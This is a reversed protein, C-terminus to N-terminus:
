GTAAAYTGPRVTRRTSSSRRTTSTSSRPPSEPCSRRRGAGPWRRLAADVPRHSRRKEQRRAARAEGAGPGAPTRRSHATRAPLRPTTRAPPVTGSCTSRRSDRRVRSSAPWWSSRPRQDQGRRRAPPVGDYKGGRWGASASDGLLAAVLPVGLAALPNVARSAPHYSAGRPRLGLVLASRLSAGDARRQRDGLGERGPLSRWCRRGSTPWTVVERGRARTGSSGHQTGHVRERCGTAVRGGSARVWSRRARSARRRRSLSAESRRRATLAADDGSGSPRPFRGRV